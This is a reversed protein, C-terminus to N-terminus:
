ILASVFKSREYIYTSHRNLKATAKSKQTQEENSDMAGQNKLSTIMEPIMFFICVCCAATSRHENIIGAEYRGACLVVM